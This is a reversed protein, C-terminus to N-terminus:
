ELVNSKFKSLITQYLLLNYGFVSNDIHCIYNDSYNVGPFKKEHGAGNSRRNLAWVNYDLSLNYLYNLSSNSLTNDLIHYM